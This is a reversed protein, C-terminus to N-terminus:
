KDTLPCKPQKWTKATTFLAAIFVLTCIDRQIMTKDQYVGLLSVAPDYPLEIKWKKLVKWVSKWLPQLLTCEWWCHLLTGKEGCVKWCKNSPYNKIVAMRVLTLHYRVTTKIQMETVILLSSCRKVHRNAIQMFISYKPAGATACYTSFGFAATRTVLKIGLGNRHTLPDLTAM